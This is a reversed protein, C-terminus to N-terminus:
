QIFIRLAMLALLYLVAVTIFLLDRRRVCMRRWHTRHAGEEYCRADLALALNDAHRLTGAFVPVVIATLARLRKAPSGTEIDGGRASQADIVAHAERALTPLFRLALSLVLAIEQTHVGFRRLPSLLSGIADTLETPTTTAMMVAGLVVVLAFRLTYLAATRVGGTTITLPGWAALVDGGRAFFLNLLGMVVLMGLILRVAALLRLPNLRGVAIIGAALAAALGLQWANSIAFATFMLVLFTVMKVRPDLTGLPGSGEAGTRASQTHPPQGMTIIRAGMAAAEAASHTIVLVTVGQARLTRILDHIRASARTDLGATPEDMILVDPRCALVGAIAALRQQGGSLAFPSRDALHGIRLLQLAWEVHERVAAEPLGQSRPGYAVDQTVTDAFLQREPHQM